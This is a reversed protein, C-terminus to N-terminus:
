RLFDRKELCPWVLFLYGFKKPYRELIHVPTKVLRLILPLFVKYM